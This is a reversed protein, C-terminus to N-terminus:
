NSSCLNILNGVCHVKVFPVSKAVNSKEITAVPTIPDLAMSPCCYGDKAKAYSSSPVGTGSVPVVSVVVVVVVSLAV